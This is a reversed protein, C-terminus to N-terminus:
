ENTSPQTEQPKDPVKESDRKMGRIVEVTYFDPPKPPVKAVVVRRVAGMPRPPPVRIDGAILQDLTIPRTDLKEKDTGSRLIFQITGHSSALLLKESDEPKLSVTVVNVPKAEGKPDPSMTQGATLVEVDQLITQTVPSPKGPPQFTALVDVRSGPFLFGAVGIIENSRVATARFGLPIKATLSIGAGPAALDKELIVEKEDLPNILTRGLVAEATNFTGKAALTVPWDMLTMDEAKLAIGPTLPKAAVVVKVMPPPASAQRVMRRYFFYTVAGSVVLALLLALLLRRSDM